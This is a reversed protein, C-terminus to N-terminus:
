NKSRKDGRLLRRAMYKNFHSLKHLSMCNAIVSSRTRNTVDVVFPVLKVGCGCRNILHLKRVRTSIINNTQVIRRTLPM